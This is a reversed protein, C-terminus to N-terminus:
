GERCGLVDHGVPVHFVHHGLAIELRSVDLGLDQMRESPVSLRLSGFRDADIVEASVSGGNRWALEFPGAVLTEPDLEDGLGQPEVGCALAAAAPALM